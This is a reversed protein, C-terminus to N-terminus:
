LTKIDLIANNIKGTSDDDSSRPMVSPTLILIEKLALTIVNIRSKIKKIFYIINFQTHRHKCPLTNFLLGIKSLKRVSLNFQKLTKERILLLFFSM